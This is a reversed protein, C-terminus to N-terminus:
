TRRLLYGSQNASLMFREKTRAVSFDDRGGLFSAIPEFPGSGFRPAVPHGNIASDEVTFYQVRTVCQSYIRLEEDVHSKRHDSDLIVM